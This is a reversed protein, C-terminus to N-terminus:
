ASTSTREGNTDSREVKVPERAVMCLMIEAMVRRRGTDYALRGHSDIHKPDPMPDCMQHIQSLVRRGQEPTSNGGFVDRFDKARDNFSYPGDVTAHVRPLSELLEIVADRDERKFPRRPRDHRM